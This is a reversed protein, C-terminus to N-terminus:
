PEERPTNLWTPHCTRDHCAYDGECVQPAFGLDEALSRAARRAAGVSDEHHVEVTETRPLM